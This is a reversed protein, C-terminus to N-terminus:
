RCPRKESQARHPRSFEGAIALVLFIEHAGRVRKGEGRTPSPPDGDRLPPSVPSPGRPQYLGEDPLRRSGGEGVPPSPFSAAILGRGGEKSVGLARCLQM